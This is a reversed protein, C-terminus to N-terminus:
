EPNPIKKKASNPTVMTKYIFQEDFTDNPFFCDLVSLVLRRSEANWPFDLEGVMEDFLIRTFDIAKNRKRFEFAYQFSNRDYYYPIGLKDTSVVSRLEQLDNLLNSHELFSDLYVFSPSSYKLMGELKEITALISKGESKALEISDRIGSTDTLAIEIAHVFDAANQTSPFKEWVEKAASSFFLVDYFQDYRELMNKQQGLSYALQGCAHFSKVFDVVRLYHDWANDPVYHPKHKDM